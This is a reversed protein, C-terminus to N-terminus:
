AGDGDDVQVRRARPRMTTLASVRRHVYGYSRGRQDALARVTVKADAAYAEALERAEAMDRFRPGDERETM